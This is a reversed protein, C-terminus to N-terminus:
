ATVQVPKTRKASFFSEEFISPPAVYESKGMLHVQRAVLGIGFGFASHWYPKFQLVLRVESYKTVEDKDIRAGEADFFRTHIKGEYEDLKVKVSEGYTPDAKYLPKQSHLVVVDQLGKYDHEKAHLFALEDIAQALEKFYMAEDSEDIRIDIDAMLTEGEKLEREPEVTKKKTYVSARAGSKTVLPETTVIPVRLTGDQDKYRVTWLTGNKGEFKDLVFRSPRESFLQKLTLEITNSM